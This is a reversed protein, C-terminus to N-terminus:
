KHTNWSRQISIQKLNNLSATKVHKFSSSISGEEGDEAIYATNM